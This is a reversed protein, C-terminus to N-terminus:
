GMLSTDRLCLREILRVLGFERLLESDRDLCHDVASRFRKGLAKIASCVHTEGVVDQVHWCRTVCDIVTHFILVDPGETSTLYVIAQRDTAPFCGVLDVVVLIGRPRTIRTQNARITLLGKDATAVTTAVEGIERAKGV